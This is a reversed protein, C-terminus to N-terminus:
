LGLRINIQAIEGMVKRYGAPNSEKLVRAKQALEFRRTDMEVMEKAKDKNGANLYESAMIAAEQIRFTHPVEVGKNEDQVKWVPIRQGSSRSKAMMDIVSWNGAPTRIPRIFDDEDEVLEQPAMSQNVPEAGSLQRITKGTRQGTFPDVKGDDLLETLREYISSLNKRERSEHRHIIDAGEGDVARSAHMKPDFGIPGDVLPQVGEDIIRATRESMGNIPVQPASQLLNAVEQPTSRWDDDSM